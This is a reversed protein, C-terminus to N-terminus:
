AQNSIASEGSANVATVVYYYTTGNTLGTDTFSTGSVNTQVNTYPGGSTTSRKVNYGTAGSVANWSLQVQANGSAAILGTPASPVDGPTIQLFASTINASTLSYVRNAT